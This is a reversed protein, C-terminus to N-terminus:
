ITESVMEQCPIKRGQRSVRKHMDSGHLLCSEIRHMKNHVAWQPGRRPSASPSVIDGQAGGRHIRLHIYLFVQPINPPQRDFAKRVGHLRQQCDRHHNSAHNRDEWRCVLSFPM